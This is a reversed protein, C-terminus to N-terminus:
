IGSYSLWLLTRKLPLRVRLFAKAHKMLLWRRRFGGELFLMSLVEMKIRITVKITALSTNLRLDHATM